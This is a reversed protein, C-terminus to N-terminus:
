KIGVRGKGITGQVERQKNLLPPITRRGKQLLCTQQVCIFFLRFQGKEYRTIM